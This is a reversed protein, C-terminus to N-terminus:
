HPAIRCSVFPMGMYGWVYGTVMYDLVGDVLLIGYEIDNRVAKKLRHTIACAHFLTKLQKKPFLM